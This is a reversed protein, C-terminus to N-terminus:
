AAESIERLYKKVAKDFDKKPLNENVLCLLETKKNLLILTEMSSKKAYYYWRRTSPSFTQALVFERIKERHLVRFHYYFIGKVYTVSDLSLIVNM